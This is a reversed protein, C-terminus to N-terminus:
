LADAEEKLKKGLEIGMQLIEEQSPHRRGFYPHETDFLDMIRDATAHDYYGTAYGINLLIVARTETETANMMKALEAAEESILQAAQEKTNIKGDIVLHTIEMM